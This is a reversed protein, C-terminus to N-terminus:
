FSYSSVKTICIGFGCKEGFLNNFDKNLIKLVNDTKRKFKRFPVRVDIHYM